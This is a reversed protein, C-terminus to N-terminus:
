RRHLPESTVYPVVRLDKGGKGGDVGLQKHHQISRLDDPCTIRLYIQPPTIQPPPHQLSTLQSATVNQLSPSPKIFVM